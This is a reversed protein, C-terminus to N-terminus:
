SFVSRTYPKRWSKQSMPTCPINRGHISAVTHRFWSHLYKPWRRGPTIAPMLAFRAMSQSVIRRKFVESPSPRHWRGAMPDFENLVPTGFGHGVPHMGLLLNPEPAAGATVQGRCRSVNGVLAKGNEAHLKPRMYQTKGRRSLEILANTYKRHFGQGCRALQGVQADRRQPWVPMPQAPQRHRDFGSLCSPPHHHPKFLRPCRYYALGIPPRALVRSLPGIGQRASLMMVVPVSQVATAAM